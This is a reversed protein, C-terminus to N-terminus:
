VFDGIFQQVLKSWESEINAQTTRALEQEAKMRPLKNRLDDAEDTIIRGNDFVEIKRHEVEDRALKLDAIDAKIANIQEELERERAELSVVRSCVVNYFTAVESFEKINTELDEQLKEANSLIATAFELKRSADNDNSSWQSFSTSLQLMEKIPNIQEELERKKAELDALRDHVVKQFTEAERFEKVNTELYEQLKEANSLIATASELKLSADNYDSSWQSFSTSLQLMASKMSRSIGDEPSLSLLNDLVNKMHGYRGPHLLVCFKKLMFDRLSQLKKQTEESPRTSLTEQLIPSASSEAEISAYFAEMNDKIQSFEENAIEEPVQIHITEAKDCFNDELLLKIYRDDLIEEDNSSDVLLLGKGKSETDTETEYSKPIQHNISTSLEKKSIGLAADVEEYALNSDLFVSNIFSINFIKKGEKYLCVGSCKETGIKLPEQLSLLNRSPNFVAVVMSPLLFSLHEMLDDVRLNNPLHQLSGFSQVNRVILVRLNKMKQFTIDCHVMSQDPLDVLMGQIRSSGTNKTLVELVDQQHWLRSRKGPELPSEERVIEKGMDRVLNHMRVLRKLLSLNMGM